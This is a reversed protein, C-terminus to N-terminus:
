EAPELSKARDIVSEVYARRADHEKAITEDSDQLAQVDTQAFGIIGMTEYGNRITQPVNLVAKQLNSRWEALESEAQIMKPQKSKYRQRLNANLISQNALTSAAAITIEEMALDLNDSSTALEVFDVVAPRLATQAM